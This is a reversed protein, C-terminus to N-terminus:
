GSCSSPDGYRLDQYGGSVDLEKPQQSTIPEARSVLLNWEVIYGDVCGNKALVAAM